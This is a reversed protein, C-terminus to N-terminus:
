FKTMNKRAFNETQDFIPSFSFTTRTNSKGNLLRASRIVHYGRAKVSKDRQGQFTATADRRMPKAAPQAVLAHLVCVCVCM